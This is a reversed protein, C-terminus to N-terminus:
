RGQKHETSGSPTTLSIGTYGHTAVKLLFLVAGSRKEYTGGLSGIVNKVVEHSQILLLTHTIICGLSVSSQAINHIFHLLVPDFIFCIDQVLMHLVSIPLILFDHRQFVGIRQLALVM